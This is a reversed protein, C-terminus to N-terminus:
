PGCAQTQPSHKACSFCLSPTSSCWSTICHLWHQQQFHVRYFRCDTSWSRSLLLDDSERTELSYSCPIQFGHDLKSALLSDSAKILSLTSCIPCLLRVVKLALKSIVVSSSTQQEAVPLPEQIIDWYESLYEKTCISSWNVVPRRKAHM